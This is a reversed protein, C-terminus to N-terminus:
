RITRKIIRVVVGFSWSRRSCYILSKQYRIQMMFVPSATPAFVSLALEVGLMVISWFLEAELEPVGGDVDAVGGHQVSTLCM